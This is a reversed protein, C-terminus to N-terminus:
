YGMVNVLYFDSSLASKLIQAKARLASPTSSSLKDMLMQQELFRDETLVPHDQYIFFFDPFDTGMIKVTYFDIYLTSKLIQAQSCPENMVEGTHVLRM